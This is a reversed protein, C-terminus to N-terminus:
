AYKEAAPDIGAEDGRDSALRRAIGHLGEGDPEMLRRVVLGCDRAIDGVPQAGLVVFVTNVGLREVTERLM